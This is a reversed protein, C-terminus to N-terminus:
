RTKFFRFHKLGDLVADQAFPSFFVSQQSRVEEVSSDHVDPVVVTTLGSILDADGQQSAVILINELPLGWRLALFRIDESRSARLPIVDLYWHCRM